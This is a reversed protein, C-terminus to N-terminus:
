PAYGLVETIRGYYSQFTSDYISSAGRYARIVEKTNGYKDYLIELYAAIMQIAIKPDYPTVNHDYTGLQLVDEYIHRGTRKIFQGLGAASSSSSKSNAHGQSECEIIAFLIDPNLGKETMLNYGYEVLEITVDSPGKWDYMVFEYRQALYERSASVQEQTTTEEVTTPEEITTLEEVITTTEEEHLVTTEEETTTESTPIEIPKAASVMPMTVSSLSLPTLFLNSDDTDAIIMNPIIMRKMSITNTYNLPQYINDIGLCDCIQDIEQNLNDFVLQLKQTEYSLKETTEYMDNAVVCMDDTISLTTDLTTELKRLLVAAYLLMVSLVSVVMIAYIKQFLKKNHIKRRESVCHRNNLWKM